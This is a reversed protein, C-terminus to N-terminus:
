AASLPVKLPFQLARMVQHSLPRALLYGQGAFCGEQILAQAQAPTEIGEAVIKFGLKNGLTIITQVLARSKENEPLGDVFSRDIKLRDVPLDKLYRLSSYGTGFDDIAICIGRNRFAKLSELVFSSPEVLSSETLELELRSPPFGTQKLVRDVQAVFGSSYLQQSAINIAIQGFDWGEKLWQKGQLCAREMVWAGLKHILGTQEALPIFRDPAIWGEETHHWRVLVEMGLCQGSRVDVQPQYHIELQNRKLAQALEAGLYLRERAAEGMERSYFAFRQGAKKAWYMAADAQMMLASATQETTGGVAIGISASLRFEQKGNVFPAELVDLVQEVLPAIAASDELDRFLLVLEDGGWRAVLNGESLLESVRSGLARLVRDGIEHGFGNNLTNFDNLDLLIVAFIEGSRRSLAVAQRLRDNFLRRNPLGTLADHYALYELRQEAQKIRTLDTLTSVYRTIQGVEDTIVNISQWTPFAEGDKRRGTIEGQWHGNSNLESGLPEHTYGHCSDFQVINSNRGLVEEESYGTIATFAPNVAMVCGDANAIIVGDGAAKFAAGWEALRNELEKRETIDQFTGLLRVAKGEMVEPQARIRVWITRGKRTQLQTDFDATVGHDVAHQLNNSVLQLYEGKYFQPLAEDLPPPADTHDVELIERSVATWRLEGTSLDSEWGGVRSVQNTRELLEESEKLARTDTIDRHTVLIYFRDQDQFRKAIFLCWQRQSPSHCPYEWELSNRAGKLVEALQHAIADVENGLISQCVGLYGRGRYAHSAVGNELAYARWLANVVLIEGNENLLAASDPLAELWSHAPETPLQLFPPLPM